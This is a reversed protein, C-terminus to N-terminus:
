FNRISSFKGKRGFVDIARVKYQGRITLNKNMEPAYHYSMFPVHQGTTIHIWKSNWDNPSFFIEYTKTCRFFVYNKLDTIDIPFLYTPIINGPNPSNKKGFSYSKMRM